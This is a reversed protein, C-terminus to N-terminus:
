ATVLEYDLAIDDLLVVLDAATDSLLDHSYQARKLFDLKKRGEPTNGDLLDRLQDSLTVIEDVSNGEISEGLSEDYDAGRPSDYLEDSILCGVACKAGDIRDRYVCQVGDVKALRANPRSFYARIFEYVEQTTPNPGLETAM